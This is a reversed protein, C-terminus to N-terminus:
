IQYVTSSSTKKTISIEDDKNNGNLLIANYQEEDEEDDLKTIIMDNDDVDFTEDLLNSRKYKKIPVFFDPHKNEVVNWFLQNWRAKMTYDKRLKTIKILLKQYSGMNSIWENPGKGKSKPEEPWGTEKLKLLNPYLNLILYITCAEDSPTVSLFILSKLRISQSSLNDKWRKSVIPLFIYVYQYWADLVEEDEEYKPDYFHYYNSLIKFHKEDNQLFVLFHFL